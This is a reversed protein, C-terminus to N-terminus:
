PRVEVVRPMRGASLELELISRQRRSYALLASAKLRGAFPGYVALSQLKGRTRSPEPPRALLSRTLRRSATADLSRRIHPSVDGRQYRLFANLFRRAVRRARPRKGSLDAPNPPETGRPPTRAFPMEHKAAGDVATAEGGAAGRPAPRRSDDNRAATAALGVALATLLAFLARRRRSM